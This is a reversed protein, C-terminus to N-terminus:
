ALGSAEAGCQLSPRVARLSLPVAPPPAGSRQLAPCSQNARTVERFMEPSIQIRRSTAWELLEARNFRFQESIRYAPIVDEKIWRYITKEPMNVLKATDKISLQM